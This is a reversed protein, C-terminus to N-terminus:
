TSKSQFMATKLNALVGAFRKAEVMGGERYEQILKGARDCESFTFLCLNETVWDFAPRSMGQSVAYAAENISDTRFM